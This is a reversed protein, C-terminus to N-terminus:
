QGTGTIFGHKQLIPNSTSKTFLGLPERATAYGIEYNEGDFNNASYTTM